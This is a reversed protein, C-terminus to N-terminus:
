VAADGERFDRRILALMLQVQGPFAPMGMAADDMGCIGRPAGDLGRQLLMCSLVGIDGKKLVAICHIQDCAGFDPLGMHTDHAGVNEIAAALANLSEPGAGHHNGGPAGALDVEIGAVRIDRGAISNGHCPSSAGIDGVHLENLEMWGTEIMGM